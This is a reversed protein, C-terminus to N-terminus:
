NGLRAQMLEEMYTTAITRGAAHFSQCLKTLEEANFPEEVNTWGEAMGLITDVESRNKAEDGTSWRELEEKTRHRFVFEIALTKGEPAPIKATAKFTPAAAITIKAM